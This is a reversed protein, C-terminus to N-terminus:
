FGQRLTLYTAGITLTALYAKVVLDRKKDAASMPMRKNWQDEEGEVKEGRKARMVADAKPDM